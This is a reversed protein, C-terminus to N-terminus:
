MFKPDKRLVAKYDNLDFVGDGNKDIEKFKQELYEKDTKTHQGTIM